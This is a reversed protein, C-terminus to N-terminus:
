LFRPSLDVLPELARRGAPDLVEQGFVGHVARRRGDEAVREVELAVPFALEVGPGRAVVDEVEGVAAMDGRREHRAALPLVDGAAGAVLDEPERVRAAAAAAAAVGAAEERHVDVEGVLAM